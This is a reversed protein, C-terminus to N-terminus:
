PQCHAQWKAHHRRMADLAENLETETVGCTLSQAAAGPPGQVGEDGRVGGVGPAGEDGRVGQPGQPGPPGPTQRADRAITLQNRLAALGCEIKDFYQQFPIM